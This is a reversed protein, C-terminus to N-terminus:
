MFLEADMSSTSPKGYFEHARVRIFDIIRRIISLVTCKAHAAQVTLSRIPRSPSFTESQCSTSRNLFAFSVASIEIYTAFPSPLDISVLTNFNLIVEVKPTGTPKKMLLIFSKTGDRSHLYKRLILVMTSHMDFM